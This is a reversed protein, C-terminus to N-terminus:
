IAIQSWVHSVMVHGHDGERMMTMIAMENGSLQVRRMETLPETVVAATHRSEWVFFLDHHFTANCCSFFPFVAMIQSLCSSLGFRVRFLQKNEMSGCGATAVLAHLSAIKVLGRTKAYVVM